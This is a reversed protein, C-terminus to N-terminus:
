HFAILVYIDIPSERLPSTFFALICALQFNLLNTEYEVVSLSKYFVVSLCTM